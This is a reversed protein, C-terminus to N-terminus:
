PKEVSDRTATFFPAFANIAAIRFADQRTILGATLVGWAGLGNRIGHEGAYADIAVSLDVGEDVVRRALEDPISIAGSQGYHGRDAADAVYVWSELLVHRQGDLVVIELGGEMGVIYDPPHVFEHAIRRLADVRGKAGQMTELRSLPTSRVGSAAERGTVEFALPPSILPAYADLAAHVAALKPARLSGVIIHVIQTAPVSTLSAV